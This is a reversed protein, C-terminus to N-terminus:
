LLEESEAVHIDGRVTRLRVKAGGRGLTTRWSADGPVESVKFSYNGDVRGAVTSLQLDANAEAPLGLYLHGNVTEMEVPASGEALSRLSVAINGNLVRAVVGGTINMEEINGNLTRANVMGEIDRVRIDGVVTRLRELQVQRPVRLRFDVRVPEESPAPYTARVALKSGDSEVEIRVDDPNASPGLARKLVAVEVEARDWAEVRVDGQVNEVSVSGAPRLPYRAVWSKQRVTGGASSGGALASGRPEEQVMCQKAVVMSSSLLLLGLVIGVRSLLQM